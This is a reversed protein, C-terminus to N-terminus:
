DVEEETGWEEDPDGAETEWPDDDDAVHDVQAEDGDESYHGCCTCHQSAKMHLESLMQLASVLELPAHEIDVEEYEDFDEDENDDDDDDIDDDDYGEDWDIEQESEYPEYDFLIAGLAADMEPDVLDVLECHSIELVRLKPLGHVLAKVGADTISVATLSVQVLNPCNEVFRALIDDDVEPVDILDLVRLSPLRRTLGALAAHDIDSDHLAFKEVHRVRQLPTNKHFGHTDFLSMHLELFAANQCVQYLAPLLQGDDVDGESFRLHMWKVSHALHPSGHVARLFRRVTAEHGFTVTHYLTPTFVAHLRSCTAAARALYRPLRLSIADQAIKTLIENPLALFPSFSTQVPRKRPVRAQPPVGSSSAAPVFEQARPNFKFPATM